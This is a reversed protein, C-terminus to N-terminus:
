FCVDSAACILQLLQQLMLALLLRSGAGKQLSLADWSLAIGDDCVIDDLDQTKVYPGIVRAVLAHLVLLSLQM